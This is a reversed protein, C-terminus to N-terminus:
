KNRGRYLSYILWMSIALSAAILIWFMTTTSYWPADVRPRSSTGSIAKSCATLFSIALTYLVLGIALLVAFCLSFVLGIIKLTSRVSPSPTEATQPADYPNSRPSTIAPPPQKKDNKAM